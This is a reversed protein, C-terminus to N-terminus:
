ATVEVGVEMGNIDAEEWTASDDPNNEDIKSFTKYSILLDEETGQYDTGNVRRLIKAKRTGSDDKRITIQTKVAHIIGTFSTVSPLAYTDKDGVNGSSNYTADDDPYIEDVNEYNAGASPTLDTHVGAGNPRLVEIRVDGLFDNNKSGSADLLYFDDFWTQNNYLLEVKVAGAYANSGNQTDIGSLNLVESGDVKIVVSGASDHIVVKVEIYYWTTSEITHGSSTGLLTDASNHVELHKGANPHIKLHINGAVLADYITFMPYTANYASPAGIPKVAIGFWITDPTGPAEAMYYVGLNNMQMGRSSNRGYSIGFGLSLALLNSNMQVDLYDNYSEFGDFWLLSV